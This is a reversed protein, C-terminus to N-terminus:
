DNDQTCGQLLCVTTFPYEAGAGKTSNRSAGKDPPVSRYRLRVNALVESDNRPVGILSTEHGPLVERDQGPYVGRPPWAPRHGPRVEWDQGPYVGVGRPPDSQGRPRTTGREIKDQTCGWGELPILSTEHGPLVERDQGPYVGTPPLPCVIAQHTSLYVVVVSSIGPVQLLRPTTVTYFWSDCDCPNIYLLSGPDCVRCTTDSFLLYHGFVVPITDSFLLYGALVLRQALTPEINPWRRLRHVLM